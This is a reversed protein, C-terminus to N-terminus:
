RFQSTLYRGVEIEIDFNFLKDASELKYDYNTASITVPFYAGLVEMYVIPSSVLQALWSYDQESVWDSTLKYKDKHQIAYNFTTENLRNYGDTNKMQGGSLQWDTRRYSAREFESSRKNVLTFSKTEWGGLRNLFQL